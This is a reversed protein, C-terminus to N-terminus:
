WTLSKLLSFQSSRMCLNFEHLYHIITSCIGHISHNYDGNRDVLDSYVRVYM